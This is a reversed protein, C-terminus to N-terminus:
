PTDNYEATPAAPLSAATDTGAHRLNRYDLLLQRWCAYPQITQSAHNSDSCWRSPLNESEMVCARDQVGDRYEDVLLGGPSWTLRFLIHSAEHALVFTRVNEPAIMLRGARGQGPQESVAGSAPIDWGSTTWFLLDLNSTNAFGFGSVFQQASLGPAVNDFFRIRDIRVQGESLNWLMNNAAVFTAYLSQMRSLPVNETFGVHWTVGVPPTANAPVIPQATTTGGSGPPPAPGPGGGNGGGQAPPDDNDDAQAGDGSECALPGIALALLLFLRIRSM